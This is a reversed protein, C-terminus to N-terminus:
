HADAAEAHHSYNSISMDVEVLEHAQNDLTVSRQESLLPHWNERMWAAEGALSEDWAEEPVEEKHEEEKQQQQHPQNRRLTSAPREAFALARVQLALREPHHWAAFKWNVIIDADASYAGYRLTTTSPFGGEGRAAVGRIYFGDAYSSVLQAAARDKYHYVLVLEMPGEYTQLRFNELFYKLQIKAAAGGKIATICAVKPIMGSWHSRRLEHRGVVALSGTIRFNLSGRLYAKHSSPWDAVSSWHLEKPEHSLQSARKALAQAAKYQEEEDFLSPINMVQSLHADVAVMKDKLEKTVDIWMARLDAAKQREKEKALFDACTPLDKFHPQECREKQREHQKEMVENLHADAALAQDKLRQTISVWEARLETSNQSEQKEEAALFEVCDPQDKFEPQECHEKESATQPIIAHLRENAADMRDKLAKVMNIWEARAENQSEEHKKAALFEACAPQDRWEPLECREKKWTSHKAMVEDLHSDAAQAEEMLRRTINVWEARLADQSEESEHEDDHEDDQEHEHAALIEVCHPTDKWHPKKCL